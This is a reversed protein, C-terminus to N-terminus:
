RAQGDFRIGYEAGGRVNNIELVGAAPNEDIGYRHLLSGEAVYLALIAKQHNIISDLEAEKAYNLDEEKELVSRSNSKGSNLKELEVELLGQEIERANKYYEAQSRTSYVNEVATSIISAIQTEVAKLELLAQKKRHKAANLESRTKLDGMLPITMTIGVHWTNYDQDFADSRSESLSEGLGNIGYSGNLDLKPWRQNKAYRLLIKEKEIKSVAALYEPRLKFATKISASFDPNIGRNELEEDVDIDVVIDVDSSSVYSRVENAASVLDQRASCEWSKRKALGAEAELVETKAIKGLKYRELNDELVKRAIKVSDERIKLKQEAGFLDWCATVANFIVEIKKMRYTQFSIVSDKEATRIGASSAMGSNRLLPQTIELGYFSKYEWDEDLEHDKSIDETYGFKVDAGTPIKSQLVLGFNDSIKDRRSNFLMSAKEEQSYKKKDRGHQFSNVLEPEFVSKERTVNERSIMFEHHQAGINENKRNVMRVYESLTLSLTEKRMKDSEAQEALAESFYFVSSLVLLTSISYLIRTM